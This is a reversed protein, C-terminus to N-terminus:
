AASRLRREDWRQRIPSRLPPPYPGWLDPRNWPPSFSLNWSDFKEGSAHRYTGTPPCLQGPELGTVPRTGSSTFEEGNAFTYTLGDPADANGSIGLEGRHHMRHHHPCLCVLNWSDTVGGDDWHIVHHIELWHTQGCGPVNCRGGDRLTVVRRLRDPVIRENRGVNLPIGGKTFIPDWSNDCTLYRRISDPIRVDSSDVAAGAQDFHFHLKFRDRRSPSEVTDLSRQAIQELANVWNVDTQGSQFLADRAELLANAIIAGTLGDTLLHLYFRGKDDHGFQCYEHDGSPQERDTCDGSSADDTDGPLKEPDDDVLEDPKAYDDFPYKSLLRRLQAVTRLAAFRSAQEDAWWPVFRAVEHAQELSLEGDRLAQLTFPLEDARGALTTLQKATRPSVGTKWCLFHELSRLGQGGWLSPDEVYAIVSDLLMAHLSNLGGVALNLRDEAADVRHAREEPSQQAGEHIATIEEM